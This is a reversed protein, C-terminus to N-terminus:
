FIVIDNGYSGLVDVIVLLSLVRSFVGFTLVIIFEVERVTSINYLIGGILILELSIIVFIFRNMKIILM